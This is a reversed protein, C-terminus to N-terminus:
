STECSSRAAREVRCVSEPVAKISSDLETACPKAKRLHTGGSLRSNRSNSLV